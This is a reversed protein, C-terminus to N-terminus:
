LEEEVRSAAFDEGGACGLYDWVHFVNELMGDTEVCQEGEPSARCVAREAGGGGLWAEVQQVGLVGHRGYVLV